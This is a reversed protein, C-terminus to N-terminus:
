RLYFIIYIFRLVTSNQNRIVDIVDFVESVEKLKDLTQKVKDVNIPEVRMKEEILRYIFLVLWKRPKHCVVTPMFLNTYSKSLWDLRESYEQRKWFQLLKQLLNSTEQNAVLGKRLMEQKRTKTNLNRTRKRMVKWRILEYYTSFSNIYLYTPLSLLIYAGLIYLYTRCALTLYVLCMADFLSFWENIRLWEMVGDIWEFVINSYRRRWRSPALRAM